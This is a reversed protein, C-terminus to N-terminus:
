EITQGAIYASTQQVQIFECEAPDDTTFSYNEVKNLVWMSNEYWFFHRLLEQGVPLGSLNVRCRLIKTDRDYRDTLYQKWFREYLTIDDQKYSYGPIALEKARGFDLAKEINEGDAKYRTFVPMSNIVGQADGERDLNWCPKGDNLALMEPTDDTLKYQPIPFFGVRSNLYVLIGDGDLPKGDDDHLQLKPRGSFDYGTYDKNFYVISASDPPCSINFEETEGGSSWMTYTNGKDVFVSPKYQGDDTITNFYANSELATVADRFVTGEMVDITDAEFEYGTDVRQLGYEIGYRTKYAEYFKGGDSELRFDYWKTEFVFPVVEIDHSRDVRDTIDISDRTPYKGYLTNRSVISVVKTTNDYLFHLGFIKCFSLLYDAPTQRTNLLVNKTLRAGSRFGEDPVEVTVTGIDVDPLVSCSEAYYADDTSGGPYTFEVPYGWRQMEWVGLIERILYPSIHVVFRDVDGQGSASLTMGNDQVYGGSDLDRNFLCQISYDNFIDDGNYDPIFSCIEALYQPTLYGGEAQASSICHVKGGGVVTNGSYAVLQVFIVTYYIGLQMNMSYYPMVTDLTQVNVSPVQFVLRLSVSAEVTANSPVPGEPTVTYSAVDLDSTPVTGPASLEASISSETVELETLMPLTVWLDDYFTEGDSGTLSSMDVTYGGNNEPRCIADMFAKMSLVPRQLYSRLDKVAWEDHEEALNVLVYGNKANYTKDDVTLGTQLGVVAPTAVAKDASFDGDPIGNYCPAFNVVQWKGSTGAMLSNWAQQVTVANIIFDLESDSDDTDLYQLSSLTRKNGSGDYTLSYFFSGLGGYLTVNYTVVNGAVQVTDLKVYGREMVQSMEDYIEFPTKRTPDFSVGASSTPGPMIKRDVRFAEGFIRNNAPTGKIAISQSYSNKVVTPNTLDEMTWNFLILAEDDLDVPQGGIYLTINRKM